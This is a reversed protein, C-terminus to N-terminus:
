KKRKKVAKKKAVPKKPAAKKATVKVKRKRKKDAGFTAKRVDKYEYDGRKQWFILYLIELIALTNILFLAIFWCKQRNRGAKWLAVGKWPITWLILIFVLTTIEQGVGWFHVLFNVM